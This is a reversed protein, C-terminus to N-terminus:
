RRLLKPVAGVSRVIEAVKAPEGSKVTKAAKIYVVKEGMPRQHLRLRLLGRLDELFNVPDRGLYFKGEVPITVVIAQEGFCEDESAPNQFPPLPATLRRAVQNLKACGYLTPVTLMIATVFLTFKVQSSLAM